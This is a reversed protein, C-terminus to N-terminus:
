DFFGDDDDSSEKKSKKKEEKKPETKKTQTKPEDEFEEDDEVKPKKSEKVEEKKPKEKEKPSDGDERKSQKYEKLMKKVKEIKADDVAKITDNKIRTFERTDEKNKGAKNEINFRVVGGIYEDSDAEEFDLGLFNCLGENCVRFAGTLPYYFEGDEYSHSFFGTKLEKGLSTNESDEDEGRLPKSNIIEFHYETIEQDDRKPNKKRDIKTLLGLYQFEDDLNWSEGAKYKVKAM